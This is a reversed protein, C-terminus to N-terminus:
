SFGPITSVVHRRCTVTEMVVIDANKAGACAARTGIASNLVIVLVILVFTAGHCTDHTAGSELYTAVTYWAATAASDEWVWRKPQPQM